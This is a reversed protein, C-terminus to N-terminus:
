SATIQRNPDFGNNTQQQVLANVQSGSEATIYTNNMQMEKQQKALIMDRISLTRAQWAPNGILLMNLQMYIALAERSQFRMLEDEIEKIPVSAKVAASLREALDKVQKNLADVTLNMEEKIDAIEGELEQYSKPRHRNLMERFEEPFLVECLEDLEDSPSTQKMRLELKQFAKELKEKKTGKACLENFREKLPSHYLHYYPEIEKDNTLCNTLSAFNAFRFGIITRTMVSYMYRFFGWNDAFLKLLAMKEEKTHASMMIMTFAHLLCYFFGTEKMGNRTGDVEMRRLKEDLTTRLADWDTEHETRGLQTLLTLLTRSDGKEVWCEVLELLNVKGTAWSGIHEDRQAVFDIFDWANRSEVRRWLYDDYFGQMEAHLEETRGQRLLAEVDKKMQVWEAYGVSDPKEIEERLFVFIYQYRQPIM